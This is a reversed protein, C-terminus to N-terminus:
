PFSFIFLFPNFIPLKVQAHDSHQNPVKPRVILSWIIGQSQFEPGISMSERLLYSIPVKWSFYSSKQVYQYLPLQSYYELAKQEALRGLPKCMMEMHECSSAPLPTSCGVPVLPSEVLQGNTNDLIITLEEELDEPVTSLRQPRAPPCPSVLPGVQWIASDIVEQAGSAHPSVSSM